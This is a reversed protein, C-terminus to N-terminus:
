EFNVGKNVPATWSSFSFTSLCCINISLKILLNSLNSFWPNFTGLEYDVYGDPNFVYNIGSEYDVYGSIQETTIPRPRRNFDMITQM